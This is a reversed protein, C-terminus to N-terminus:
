ALPGFPDGLADRFELAQAIAQGRTDAAAAERDVAAREGIGGVPRAPCPRPRAVPEPLAAPPLPICGSRIAAAANLPVDRRGDARCLVTLHICKCRREYLHM